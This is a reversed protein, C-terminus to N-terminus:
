PNCTPNVKAIIWQTLQCMVNTVHVNIVETIHVCEVKLSLTYIDPLGGIGIHSQIQFFSAEVCFLVEPLPCFYLQIIKIFHMALYNTVKKTKQTLKLM